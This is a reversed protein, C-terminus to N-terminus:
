SVPAQPPHQPSPLRVQDILTVAYRQQADQQLLYGTTLGALGTGIVAVKAQPQQM